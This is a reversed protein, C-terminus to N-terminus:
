ERTSFEGRPPRSSEDQFKTNREEYLVKVMEAIDLFDNRFAKVDELMNKPEGGCSMRVSAEPVVPPSVKPPSQPM